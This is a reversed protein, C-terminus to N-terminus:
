QATLTSDRSSFDLDKTSRNPQWFFDLANGGKFALVQSLTRSGAVAQLIGYQAFRFKAEAVTM